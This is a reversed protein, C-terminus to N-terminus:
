PQYNRVWLNIFGFVLSTTAFRERIWWNTKKTEPFNAPAFGNATLGCLRAITVARRRHFGSTIVIVNANEPLLRKSFVINQFTTKSQEEKIIQSAPLGLNTLLATVEQREIENGSIILKAQPHTKKALLALGARERNLPSDLHGNAGLLLLHTVPSNQKKKRSLFFTLAEFFIVWALIAFFFM